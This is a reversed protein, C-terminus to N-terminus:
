LKTDREHEDEGKKSTNALIETKKDTVRECWRTRPNERYIDREKQGRERMNEGKERKIESKREREREERDRSSRTEKRM